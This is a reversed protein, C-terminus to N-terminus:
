HLHCLYDRPKVTGEPVEQDFYTDFFHLGLEKELELMRPKLQELQAKQNQQFAKNWIKCYYPLAALYNKEQYYIDCQTGEFVDKYKETANMKKLQDLLIQANQTDARALRSLLIDLTQEVQFGPPADAYPIDNIIKNECILAYSQEGLEYHCRAMSRLSQILRQWAQHHTYVVCVKDYVTLCDRWLAKSVYYNELFKAVQQFLALVHKDDYQVYNNFWTRWVEIGAVLLGSNKEEVDGVIGSALALWSLRIEFPIEESSSAAPSRTLLDLTWAKSEAILKSQLLLGDFSNKVDFFERYHQTFWLQEFHKVWERRNLLLNNSIAPNPQKVVHKALLGVGECILQSFYLRLLSVDLKDFCADRKGALFTICRSDVLHGHPLRSLFGSIELLGLGVSFTAENAGLLSFINKAATSPETQDAATMLMELLLGPVDSCLILIVQWAPALSQWQWEYFQNVLSLGEVCNLRTTLQNNLAKIDHSNLLSMAKKTLWPNGKLNTLLSDWERNANISDIVESRLDLKRLTDIALIKQQTLSLPAAEIKFRALEHLISPAQGLIIVKHGQNALEAVFESLEALLAASALQGSQNSVDDLVFCCHLSKLKEETQQRQSPELELIPAIMEIMDSPSYWDNLFSFYFGYDIQKKEALYLNVSHALHSKGFGPEGIVSVVQRAGGKQASILHDIVKVEYGDGIKNLAPPLMDSRFGFLKEHFVNLGELAHNVTSLKPSSFFFVSQQSYHVLLPWASFPRPAITTLSIEADAQLFKRVEVTAQALSLGSAIKTYLAEFCQQSVWPNSIQALGVINGMGHKQASFAIKALGMAPCFSQGDCLYERADIFLAGVRNDVLAKSLAGVEIFSDLGTFENVVFFTRHDDLIVPGDYHLIHVPSSTNRLRDQLQQWGNLQHIEVEIAGGSAIANLSFNLVNSLSISESHMVPRSLLYLVRLPKQQDKHASDVVTSTDTESLSNQQFLQSINEQLPRSVRLNYHLEAGDYPFKEQDFKRVYEKVVASLVYKSEPFITAEWLERFFNIRSSEIHVSLKEYGVSEIEEKIKILQHDEGLLEDGMYQGFKILKEVVGFDEVDSGAQLPYDHFYWALSKRFNQSIPSAYSATFFSETKERNEFIVHIADDAGAIGPCDVIRLLMGKVKVRIGKFRNISLVWCANLM